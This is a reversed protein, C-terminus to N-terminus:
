LNDVLGRELESIFKKYVKYVERFSRPSLVGLSKYVQDKHFTQVKSCLAMCDKDFFTNGDRLPVCYNTLMDYSTSIKVVTINEKFNHRPDLAEDYLVLFLGHAVEGSFTNYTALVVTGPNYIKSM